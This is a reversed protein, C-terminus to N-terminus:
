KPLEKSGVATINIGCQFPVMKEGVKITVKHSSKYGVSGTSFDEPLLVTRQGDIEIVIPKANQHFEDRTVPCVTKKAGTTSSM